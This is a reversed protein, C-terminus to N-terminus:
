KLEDRPGFDYIVVSSNQSSDAPETMDQPIPILIERGVTFDWRSLEPNARYIDGATISVGLREVAAVIDSVRDGEQLIFRKGPTPYSALNAGSGIEEASPLVMLEFRSHRLDGEADLEPFWRMQDAKAGIATKRCRLVLAKYFRDAAEPDRYKLWSGAVCLLRATEDLNNPMLKAAEWALEAAQYRYHFRQDPSTVSESYRKIEDASAVVATAEENTRRLDVTLTGEFDGGYRHWDPATETGMLEMGNTRAIFAAAALEKARQGAPLSEDWGVTLAQILRDASPILDAPFYPRADEIHSERTLRRALLYRIQATTEELKKEPSNSDDEEGDNKASPAIAPWNADVYSKLEETTLVRDAVYAADEWFDGRLLLDLSQTYERRSLRLAGLEGRIYSGAYVRSGNGSVNVFLGEAFPVPENTSEEVPFADVIQSLIATAKEVKGARLLLKATLWQATPSNGARTVWRIAAEVEDAQYAALAFQEASEVDEVNAKEVAELWAKTGERISAAATDSYPHRSILYATILKRQQPNVVLPAFANPGAVVVQAVAQELSTAASPRGAAYQQLYLDLATEFEGARLALRAEWGISAEALGATDAFGQAALARVQQYYERAKKADEAEWSRGLMYAAWTSKYHREAAPRNLLREWAERATIKDNAESNSWAMAGQFYDAFEGPLGEVTVFSPAVPQPGVPDGYEEADSLFPASGKWRDVKDAFTQLKVRQEAHGLVIREVDNTTKGAERLAARLDALEAQLTDEAYSNTSVVARASTASKPIRNLENYFDAIPAVLVAADGRDLMNNPFWPGCALLPSVGIFFASALAKSFIIYGNPALIKPKQHPKPSPAPELSGQSQVSVFGFVSFVAKQLKESYKISRSSYKQFHESLAAKIKKANL